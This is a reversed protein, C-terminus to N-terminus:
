NFPFWYGIPDCDRECDQKEEWCKESWKGHREGCRLWEDSCDDKCEEIEEEERAEEAAGYPVSGIVTTQGLPFGSVEDTIWFVVSFPDCEKCPADRVVYTQGRQLNAKLQIYRNARDEYKFYLDEWDHQITVSHEGPPLHAITISIGTFFPDKWVSRGDIHTVRPRSWSLVALDKVDRDPGEYGKYIGGPKACSGLVLVLLGISLRWANRM